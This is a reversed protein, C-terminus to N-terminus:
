NSNNNEIVRETTRQYLRWAFYYTFGIVLPGFIIWIPEFIAAINNAFHLAVAILYFRRAQKKAIGYATISASAAHFFLGPLRILIPVGVVTVFLFFEVLGFGLGVLLGLFSLSRQTEGHRYFLPYAKAFEEIFPTFIAVSCITAYNIPLVLCLSDTFNGIFLTFPVSIIAGSILFFIKEELKPKHVAPNKKRSFSFNVTSDQAYSVYYNKQM